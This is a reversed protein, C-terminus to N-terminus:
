PYGGPGLEWSGLGLKRYENLSIFTALPIGFEKIEEARRIRAGCNMLKGMRWNEAKTDLARLAARPELYRQFAQFDEVKLRARSDEVGASDAM